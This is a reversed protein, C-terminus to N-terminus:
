GTWNRYTRTVSSRWISNISRTATGCRPRAHTTSAAKSCSSPVEATPCGSLAILGSGHLRLLEKDVRPKYYFGELHSKSTLQLLNQYGEMNRALLLLHYPSRDAASKSHRSGQALYAELGIIPKIGAEKCATYFDIAGYLGGHDTIALATMGLGRAREVMPAIRSLGDLM